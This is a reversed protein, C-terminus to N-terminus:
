RWLHDILLRGSLCSGDLNVAMTQSVSTTAFVSLCTTLDTRKVLCTFFKLCLMFQIVTYVISFFIM